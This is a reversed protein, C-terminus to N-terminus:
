ILNTQFAYGNDRCFSEFQARCRIARMISVEKTSLKGLSVLNAFYEDNDVELEVSPFAIPVEKSQSSGDSRTQGRRFHSKKKYIAM